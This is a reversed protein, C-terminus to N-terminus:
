YPCGPKGCSTAGRAPVYSGCTACVVTEEVDIPRNQEGATAGGNKRDPSRLDRQRAEKERTAKLRGLFKFGYWVVALIVALVILKQFSPIGFM